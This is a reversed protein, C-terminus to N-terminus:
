EKTAGQRQLLDLNSRHLSMHGRQIGESALARMAAFNQALGVATVVEALRLREALWPAAARRAGDPATQDRRGRRRRGDAARAHRASRTTRTKKGGRRAPAYRGSMCAYAHAGAEVARWDNGTAILVPDIGNMVGKNNTTARYIDHAAFQYAMVIRDVVQKGDFEPSDLAAPPVRCTVKTLRRDTLNTLIRLGIEVPLLEPLLASVKECMTNVINAGMADGTNVHLHIVLSGIEPILRWTMDVAGGGRAM